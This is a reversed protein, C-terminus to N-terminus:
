HGAVVPPLTVRRGCPMRGIANRLILASLVYCRCQNLLIKRRALIRICGLLWELCPSCRAPLMLPSKNVVLMLSNHIPSNSSGLIQLLPPNRETRRPDLPIAKSPHLFPPANRGLVAILPPILILSIVGPASVSASKPSGM